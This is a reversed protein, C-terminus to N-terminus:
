RCTTRATKALVAADALARAADQLSTGAAAGAAARASASAGVTAPFQDASTTMADLAAQYKAAAAAFCALAPHGTLWAREREVWDRMQAVAATMDAASGASAASLARVILGERLTADRLRGEFASLADDLTSNSGTVIAGSAVPGSGGQPAPTPDGTGCGAVTAVGIALALGLALRRLTTPQM